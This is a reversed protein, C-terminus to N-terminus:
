GIERKAAWSVMSWNDWILMGWKWFFGKLPDISSDWGIVVAIWCLGSESPWHNFAGQKSHRMLLFWSHVSCIIYCITIYITIYHLLKVYVLRQRVISMWLFLSANGNCSQGNTYSDYVCCKTRHTFCKSVCFIWRHIFLRNTKSGVYTHNQLQFIVMQRRTGQSVYRIRLSSFQYISLCPEQLILMRFHVVSFLQRVYSVTHAHM